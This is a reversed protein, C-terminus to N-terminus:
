EIKQILFQELKASYKDLEDASLEVGRAQAPIHLSLNWYSAGKECVEFALNVPLSGVVKDGPQILKTDLHTVHEDFHIKNRQMWQLAGPHRSIFWTKM